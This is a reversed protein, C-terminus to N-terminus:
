VVCKQKVLILFIVGHAIKMIWSNSIEEEVSEVRKEYKESSSISNLLKPHKLLFEYFQSCTFSKFHQKTIIISRITEVNFRNKEDTWLVNSISYIREVSANTGPIAM